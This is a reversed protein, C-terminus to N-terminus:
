KIRKLAGIANLYTPLRLDAMETERKIGSVEHILEAPVQFFQTLHGCIGPIYASEGMLLIRHIGNGSERSTYYKFLRDIEKMWQNLTTLVVESVLASGSYEQDSQVSEQIALKKEEAEQYDLNFSNILSYNIERGGFSIVRSFQLVGGQIVMLNSCSHGFDLVAVTEERLSIQGNVMTEANLIKSVCNAHLDLALPKLSIEAALQQYGEILDLPLAVAQFKAKKVGDTELTDILKSQIRYHGPDIPLVHQIEFALMGAMEEEKAQPLVVERTVGLTSELTFVANRNQLNKEKIFSGMGQALKSSDIIKGDSLSHSPTNITYAQEILLVAGKKRGVVIKTQSSGIDLAVLGQGRLSTLLNKM